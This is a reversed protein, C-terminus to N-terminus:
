EIRLLFEDIEKCIVKRYDRHYAIDTHTSGKIIVLKASAGLRDMHEKRRKEYEARESDDEIEELGSSFVLVPIEKPIQMTLVEFICNSLAIDQALITEMHNPTACTEIVEEKMYGHQTFEAIGEEDTEIEERSPPAFSKLEYKMEDIDDQTYVWEQAVAEVTTTTDLLVLGKIEDPFKSAYYEAYIGSASYPLLVYPPQLEAKTLGKRIEQVYNENTRATDIPDSHGYGFYEVVCVTHKESLDRMLPAYEVSPLPDGLGPLMVIIKNGAGMQRIHMNRGNVKVLQGHPKAM